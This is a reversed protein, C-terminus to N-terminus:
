LCLPYIKRSFNWFVLEICQPVECFYLFYRVSYAASLIDHPHPPSTHLPTAWINRARARDYGETTGLKLVFVRSGDKLLINGGESTLPEMKPSNKFLNIFSQIVGPFPSVIQCWFTESVDLSSFIIEKVCVHHKFILHIWELHIRCHRRWNVGKALTHELWWLQTPHIRWRCSENIIERTPIDSSPRGGGRLRL